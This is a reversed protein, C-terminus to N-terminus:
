SSEQLLAEDDRFRMFVEELTTLELNVSEVNASLEGTSVASQLAGYFSGFSIAGGGSTGRGLTADSQRHLLSIRVETPSVSAPDIHADAFFRRVFGLIAADASDTRAAAAQKKVFGISYGTGFQDKLFISSGLTKLSGASVIAIRDGLVEAEEMSHTTLIVVRNKKCSRMLSWIRQQAAVDMGTTPEDLLIIRPSGLLAIAVSLKRKMGGSLTKVHADLKSHLEVDSAVADIYDNDLSSRSSPQAGGVRGEVTAGKIGMFLRLTERVTLPGFLVDFQPCVGLSQRWVPLTIPDAADLVTNSGNGTGRMYINGRTPQVIGTIMSILTTKGAGNHGLLALIQNSHLDISVDDVARKLKQPKFRQAIKSALGGAQVEASKFDKTVGCITLVDRDAAPIGNVDFPEIFRSSGRPLNKKITSPDLGKAASTWFDARFPFYWPQPTGMNEGPFLKDFYWALCWYIVCDVAIMYFPAAFRPDTTWAATTLGLASNEADMILALARALAVPSLLQMAREAALNNQKWVLALGLGYVGLFVFMLILSMARVQRPNSFMISLLCGMLVLSIAYEVVLVLVLVWSSYKIIGGVCVILVVLLSTAIAFLMNATAAALMYMTENTGMMILGSKAKTLKDDALGTMVGQLLPQLMFIMYFPVIASIGSSSRGRVSEFLMGNSPFAPASVLPSRLPALNQKARFVNLIATRVYADATDARVDQFTKIITTNAFITYAISPTTTAATLNSLDRFQVGAVFRTPDANRAAQLADVSPFPVIRAEPEAAAVVDVLAALVADINTSNTFGLSVCSTKATGAPCNSSLTALPKPSVDTIGKTLSINLMFLIFLIFIPTVISVITSTRERLKMTLEKRVLAALQRRLSVRASVRFSDQSLTDLPTKDHDATTMQSVLTFDSPHPHIRLVAADSAPM